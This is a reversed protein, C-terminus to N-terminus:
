KRWYSTSGYLVLVSQIVKGFISKFSKTPRDNPVGALVNINHHLYGDVLRKHDRSKYRLQLTYEADHYLWAKALDINMARQALWCLSRSVIGSGCGNGEFGNLVLLMAEETILLDKM